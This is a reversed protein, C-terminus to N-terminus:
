ADNAGVLRNQPLHTALLRKRAAECVPESRSLVLFCAHSFYAFGCLGKDRFYGLKEAIAKREAGRPVSQDFVLLLRDPSQECLAVLEPGFVYKVAEAGNSPKLKIGTDPDLFIHRHDALVSLHAARDTSSTMTHPSAVSVGLFAEFASIHAAAVEHTFMPFAVWKADPAVTRILFRKVVDYSDGFFQMRM